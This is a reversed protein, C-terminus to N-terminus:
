TWDRKKGFWSVYLIIWNQVFRLLLIFAMSLLYGLNFTPDYERLLLPSLIIRLSIYNFQSPSCDTCSYLSYVALIVLTEWKRVIAVLILLIHGIIWYIKNGQVFITCNGSQKRFITCILRIEKKNTNDRALTLNGTLPM